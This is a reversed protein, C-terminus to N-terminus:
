TQSGHVQQALEVVEDVQTSLDNAMVRVFISGLGIGVVSSIAATGVVTLLENVTRELTAFSLGDHLRSHFGLYFALLTGILGLAVLYGEYEEIQTQRNLKAELAAVATNQSQRRQSAHIVDDALPDGAIYQSSGQFAMRLYQLRRRSEMYRLLVSLFLVACVASAGSRDITITSMVSSDMLGRKRHEMILSGYTHMPDAGILDAIRSQMQGASEFRRGELQALDELIEGPVGKKSLRSIGEATLYHGFLGPALQQLRNPVYCLPITPILLLLVAAFAIWTVLVLINSLAADNSKKEAM